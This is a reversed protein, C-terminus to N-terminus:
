TLPELRLLVAGEDVQDGTAVHVADVRADMGAQISHEMKMAELVLLCEGKKVIDGERVRVDVVKGPMPTFLAGMAAAEDDHTGGAVMIELHHTEGRTFLTLSKEDRVCRVSWVRGNLEAEFEHIETSPAVGRSWQTTETAVIQIEDMEHGRDLEVCPASLRYCAKGLHEIEVHFERDRDAFRLTERAPINNQWADVAAWPSSPVSASTSGNLPANPSGDLSSASRSHAEAQARAQRGLVRDLSALVRIEWPSSDVGALLAEQHEEIFGTHLAASAFSPHAVIRSSLDINTRPGALQTEALAVGLRALADDRTSGHAILKALMSDYHVDISDGSEIGAEIRLSESAEPQQFDLVRGTTPMFDAGPDEAYLRVEIAHGEISLAEQARPLPEGAAVRLQWDVLDVGTIMETVPHEVQLRTNMEMFYFPTSPDGLDLLFEVTGAGCYDIARAAKIAAEGMATRLESSLGPAPAEEVVKQHRRQVSCDREFLHVVGGQSDAFVQVEVHRAPHVLKELLVRDDGFSARAERRASELATDFDGARAVQRMGRGGGGAVAKIILPYGIEDAACRLASADQGADECGPIVPVGAERMRAKALDKEAMTRIAAPSPGVFIVGADACAQAFEANESLFGYGPHIAQARTRRAVELIAEVCQYSESAPAPGICHAEDARRVHLAGADAESYVAICRIGRRQATAMVRCAIEGRNAILLTEISV